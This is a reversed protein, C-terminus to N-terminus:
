QLGVPITARHDPRTEVEDREGPDGEEPEDADDALLEPRDLVAEERRHEEAAPQEEQRKSNVPATVADLM